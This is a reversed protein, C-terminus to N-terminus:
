YVEINSVVPCAKDSAIRIRLASTTVPGFQVIHKYGITTASALHKWQNEAKYEIEVSNIRQGLRIFEQLLVYHILTPNEFTVYVNGILQNDNTAWYTEPNSDNLNGPAFRSDNGRFNDATINATKALNFSFASDILQRWGTLSKVDNEHILGRRDPPINLLLNAGRGVSTLYIDFLQQPTKALSDESQHYFWGPRISVDVEAPIWSKGNPDGKGLLETIGPKGAYLTDTSLSNWNTEGAIGSENGVWRIDPGADSFILVEPQDKKILRITEAWDYYTKGDIRRTEHSGGYYGDGGNAGDLWWEFIPGYNNALEQVQNRYYEIYAPTGYASHNRDWPSLYVGFKLGQAKCAESVMKVLDGEGNQWPSNKVSHSGYATPWLCFGDHHKTTLIIGKLGARKIVDVWQVVDLKEPNFLMPSEDGFGWEKNTFTNITFHIFAYQEMEHWQLQAETPIPYVPLPAETQANGSHALFTLLILYFFSHLKPISKLRCVCHNM